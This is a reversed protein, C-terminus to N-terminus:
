NKRAQQKIRRADAETLWRQKALRDAVQAVKEAYVKSSPYLAQFRSAEFPVERGMERCVGPGNSNTFLTAAPVDVYPNRVGGLGHGHGDTVVGAGSPGPATQLREARPPPTGKRVWEKLSAFAADLAFTMVPVGMMPIPPDCPANFPWDATGQASGVAATQDALPAFGTYAMKDIHGAGAIEYVRFKDDSADSDARTFPKSEIVEGQAVVAIVPVSTKRIVRRPDNAAPASACQHLRVPAAPSKVLYGDYAPKGNALTARPHVANIYTQLEGGQMTLLVAQATRGAGLLQGPSGKLLAAVQSIADWRLGEEIEAAPGNGTCATKSPNGFSLALYRAPNFVKLGVVANPMTIGVWADGSEIFHDHSYGWIM